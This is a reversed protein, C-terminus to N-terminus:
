KGQDCLTPANTGFIQANDPPLNTVPEAPHTLEEIAQRGLRTSRQGNLIGKPKDVSGDQERLMQVRKRDCDRCEEEKYTM